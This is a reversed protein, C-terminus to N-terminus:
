SLELFKKLYTVSKLPYYTVTWYDILTSKGNKEFVFDWGYGNNWKKKTVNIKNEAVFRWLTYPRSVHGSEVM